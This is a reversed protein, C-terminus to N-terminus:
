KNEEGLKPGKVEIKGSEPNINVSMGLNGLLDQSNSDVQMAQYKLILEQIELNDECVNRLCLVSWERLYPNEYDVACHNLILPIGGHQRILDQNERHSHCINGLIRILNSKYGYFMHDDESEDYEVDSQRNASTERHDYRSLVPIRTQIYIRKNLKYDSYNRKVILEKEMSAVKLMDTVLEILGNQALKSQIEKNESITINAIIEICIFMCEFQIYTLVIERVNEYVHPPRFQAKTVKEQESVPETARKQFVSYFYHELLFLATQSVNNMSMIEQESYIEERNMKDAKKSGYIDMVELLHLLQQSSYEKTPDEVNIMKKKIMELLANSDKTAIKTEFYKNFILYIWESSEDILEKKSDKTKSYVHNTLDIINQSNSFFLTRVTYNHVISNYIISSCAAIIKRNSFQLVKPVLDDFFTRTTTSESTHILYSLVFNQNEENSTVAVGILQLLAFISPASKKKFHPELNNHIELLQGL